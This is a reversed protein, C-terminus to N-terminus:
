PRRVTPKYFEWQQNVAGNCDWTILHTTNNQSWDLCKGTKANRFQTGRHQWIQDSGGDCQTMFVRAGKGGAQLCTQYADNVRRNRFMGNRDFNFTVGSTCLGVNFWGNFPNINGTVCYRAGTLFGKKKSRLKQGKFNVRGYPRGGAELHSLFGGHDHQAKFWAWRNGPSGATYPTATYTIRAGNTEPVLEAVSDGERRLDKGRSTSTARTIRSTLISRTASPSSFTTYLAVKSLAAFIQAQFGGLSHGTVTLHKDPTAGPNLANMRAAVQQALTTYFARDVPASIAIKVDEILDESKRTNTGAFALIFQDTEKYHYLGVQMGNKATFFYELQGYEDDLKDDTWVGQSACAELRDGRNCGIMVPAAAGGFDRQDHHPLHYAARAFRLVDVDSISDARVPRFQREAEPEIEEEDSVCKGFILRTMKLGADCPDSREVITCARQGEAGCAGLTETITDKLQSSGNPAAVAPVSGMLAAASLGSSIGFIVNASKKANLMFKGRSKRFMNAPKRIARDGFSM